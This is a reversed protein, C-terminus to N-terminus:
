LVTWNGCLRRRGRAMRRGYSARRSLVTLDLVIHEAADLQANFFKGQQSHASSGALTAEAKLLADGVQRLRTHSSPDEAYTALTRYVNALATREPNNQLWPFPLAALITQLLAGAFMLSAFKVAQAPTSSFHELIVLAIASQLGFIMASQGVAVLIGAAFGWFGAVVKALWIVSGCVGGVFASVAVGMSALLM